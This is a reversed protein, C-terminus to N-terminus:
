APGPASQEHGAPAPEPMTMDLALVQSLAAEVGEPCILKILPASKLATEVGNSNVRNDWSARAYLAFAIATRIDDPIVYESSPDNVALKGSMIRRESWDSDCWESLREVAKGLPLDDTLMRIGFTIPRAGIRNRRLRELGRDPLKYLGRTMDAVLDDFGFHFATTIPDVFIRLAHARMGSHCPELILGVDMFRRPIEVLKRGSSMNWSRIAELWARILERDPRTAEEIFQPIFAEVNGELGAVIKLEDIDGVHRLGPIGAKRMARVGEDDLQGAIVVEGIEPLHHAPIMRDAKFVTDGNGKRRFTSANLAPFSTEILIPDQPLSVAVLEGTARLRLQDCALDTPNERLELMASAMAIISQDNRITEPREGKRFERTAMIAEPLTGSLHPAQELLRALDQANGREAAEVHRVGEMFLGLWNIYSSRNIRSGIYHRLDQAQVRDLCLVGHTLVVGDHGRLILPTGTVKPNSSYSDKTTPVTVILEGGRRTVPLINMADMPHKSRYPDGRGESKFATPASDMTMARGAQVLVLSGPRIWENVEALYKGVSPRGDTLVNEEDHVFRFWTDQTTASLWNTGPPIFPGFAEEREQLGWLIILFRKYFLARKDHETRKDSYEVDFQTIERSERTRTNFDYSGAESFIADIETRSPFLREARSTEDDAIVMRINDGDRILIQIAKDAEMKEIMDFVGCIDAPREFHRDRRRVRSIAVCRPHPLMREVLSPNAALIGPLDKLNDANFGDGLLSDVFIEEDLYLLRQMLHLPADAPASEGTAIAHNEVDEGLFLRMTHVNRLLGDAYKKQQSIGALAQSVREEQFSQVLAMSAKMEGTREMIWASRAELVSMRYEIAKQAKQVDGSPLLAAPLQVAPATAPKEEDAPTAPAAKPHLELLLADPPTQSMSAGISHVREMVEAIESARLAEGEPCLTMSLLFEEFLMRVRSNGSWAPHGALTVSHLDGDIVHIEKLLLILGHDPCSCGAKWGMKALSHEPDTLRWWSGPEIAADAPRDQRSVGAIAIERSM